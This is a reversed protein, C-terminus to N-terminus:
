ARKKASIDVVQGKYWHGHGTFRVKYVWAASLILYTGYSKNTLEVWNKTCITGRVQPWTICTSIGKKLKLLLMILCEIKKLQRLIFSFSYAEDNKLKNEMVLAYKKFIENTKVSSWTIYYLSASVFGSIIFINGM